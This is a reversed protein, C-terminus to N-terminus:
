EKRGRAAKPVINPDPRNAYHVALDAEAETAEKTAADVDADAQKMRAQQASLHRNAEDLNKVAQYYRAAKQALTVPAKSLILTM